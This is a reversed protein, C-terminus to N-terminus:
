YKIILKKAVKKIKKIYKKINNDIESPDENRAQEKCRKECCGHQGWLFTFAFVIQYGSMGDVAKM